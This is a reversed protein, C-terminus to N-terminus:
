FEVTKSIYHKWFFTKQYPGLVTCTQELIEVLFTSFGACGAVLESVYGVPKETKIEGSIKCVM